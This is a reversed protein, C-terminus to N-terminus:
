LLLVFDGVQFMREDFRGPSIQLANPGGDSFAWTRCVSMGMARGRRLMEVMWDGSESVMLWYSNWGNVYIPSGDSLDVFQTGNRGVFGMRPQLWPIPVRIGGGGGSSWNLYGVALLLLIGLVSYVRRGKM